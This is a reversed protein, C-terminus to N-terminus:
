KYFDMGDNYTHVSANAEELNILGMEQYAKAMEEKNLKKVPKYYKKLADKPIKFMYGDEKEAIYGDECKGVISFIFDKHAFYV